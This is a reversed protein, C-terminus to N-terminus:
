TVHDGDSNLRKQGRKLVQRVNVNIRSHTLYDGFPKWLEESKCIKVTDKYDVPCCVENQTLADWFRSDMQLIKPVGHYCLRSEKSMVIIDGSRLFIPLAIEDKTKGGILFIATQGFSFSFLPAELNLESHDTHGSLTSDMHYFNVIAAEAVFNTYGLVGAVFHVMEALDKPFEGKKDESYIKTDWNHHYGLTVWRLKNLLLVNNNNQCMEWWDKNDPIIKSDINLKNPKKSYDNLCRVTWYRQGMSTFPNKIFLLGPRDVIEYIEWTKVPKFGFFTKLAEEQINIRGFKSNGLPPIKNLDLVKTLDPTPNKSKYYKFSDKFM